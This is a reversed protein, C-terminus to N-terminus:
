NFLKTVSYSYSKGGSALAGEGKSSTSKHVKDDFHYFLCQFDSVAHRKYTEAYVQPDLEHVTKTVSWRWSPLQM